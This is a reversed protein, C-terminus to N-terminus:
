TRKLTLPFGLNGLLEACSDDKCHKFEMDRWIEKLNSPNDIVTACSYQSACTAFSKHMEVTWLGSSPSINVCFIIINSASVDFKGVRLNSGTFAYM